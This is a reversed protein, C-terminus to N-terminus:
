ISMLLDIAKQRISSYTSKLDDELIYLNLLFDGPAKKIEDKNKRVLVSSSIKLVAISVSNDKKFRDLYEEISLIKMPFVLSILHFNDDRSMENRIREQTVNLFPNDAFGAEYISAFSKIQRYEQNEDTHSFGQIEKACFENLAKHNHKKSLVFLESIIVSLKKEGSTLDVILESTRDSLDSQSVTGPLSDLWQGIKIADIGSALTNSSGSRFYVNGPDLGKLKKTPTIPRDYKTVPFELVGILVTKYQITYYIFNPRPFTAGNVKEQLSADDMSQTIGKANISGDQREEVGFIIYSSESRITNTFSIVDKIFAASRDNNFSYFDSKFDLISSEAKALFRELKEETIM